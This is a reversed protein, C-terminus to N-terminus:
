GNNSLIEEWRKKYEARRDEEHFKLVEDSIVVRSDQKSALSHTNLSMKKMQLKKLVSNMLEGVFGDFWVSNIRKWVSSFVDDYVRFRPNLEPMSANPLLERVWFNAEWFKGMVGDDYVPMLDPVWFTFYPDGNELILGSLDMGDESVYFSLCIRDTIMNGHRRLGFIQAIVTVLFRTLWIRRASTIIFFDIDSKEKYSFNNCVAALKVGGIFRFLRAARKAIKYKKQVLNYQRIRKEVIDDRGKLFYFGKGKAVAGNGSVLDDMYFALKEFDCKADLGSYIESLTLPFDFMDFFALIRVISATLDNNTNQKIEQELAM